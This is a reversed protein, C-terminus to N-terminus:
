ISGLIIVKLRWMIGNLDGGDSEQDSGIGDARTLPKRWSLRVSARFAHQGGVERTSERPGEASLHCRNLRACSFFMEGHSNDLSNYAKIRLSRDRGEEESQPEHRPM